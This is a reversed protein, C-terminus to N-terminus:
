KQTINMASSNSEKRGEWFTGLTQSLTLVECGSRGGGGRKKKQVLRRVFRPPPSRQAKTFDFAVHWYRTKWVACRGERGQIGFLKCVLQKFQFLGEKVELLELLGPEISLMVPYAM